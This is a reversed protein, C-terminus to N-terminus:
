ALLGSAAGLLQGGTFPERLTLVDLPIEDDVTEAIHLIRVSPRMYRVLEILAPGDMGRLRTNTVLLHINPLEITL